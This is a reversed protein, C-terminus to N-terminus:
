SYAKCPVRPLPVTILCVNNAGQVLNKCLVHFVVLRQTPKSGYKPTVMRMKAKKLRQVSVEFTPAIQRFIIKNLELRRASVQNQLIWELWSRIAVSLQDVSIEGESFGVNWRLVLSSLPLLLTHHFPPLRSGIANKFRLLVVTCDVGPLEFGRYSSGGALQFCNENGKSCKRYLKVRSLEFMKRNGKFTRIIPLRSYMCIQKMSKKQNISVFDDFNVISLWRHIERSSNICQVEYLNAKRFM